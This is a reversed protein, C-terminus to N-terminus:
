PAPEEWARNLEAYPISEEFLPLLSHDHTVVVLTSGRERCASQLLEVVQRTNRPDLSGTPEDALVLEPGKVLARAIAVRQQEGLSLADPAHGARRELGVTRLLAEAAARDPRKGSFTGGLLVNELATFGPLLNLSQLLYGVKRARFHDREAESLPELDTGCVRVSGATPRIIGALVHLLTSKGCGSPGYLAVQRGAPVQWSPIDLVRLPGDPGPYEVRLEEVRIAPEPDSRENSLM